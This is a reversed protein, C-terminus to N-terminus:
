LLDPHINWVPEGGTVTELYKGDIKDPRVWKALFDVRGKREVRYVVGETQDCPYHWAEHRRMAEEVGIATGVHLTHPRYFHIDLRAVLEEHIVRQGERFLDFPMWAQHAHVSYITSHAQALWEGVIWEGDSLIAHFRGKRKEVWDAFLHHMRFPSSRALYGKRGLALIEGDLKTVATCSGDLKEQVIVLDHRDRVRETCIKEQGAHVAHDSPGMRSNPLHGISGYAKRNLPKAQKIM